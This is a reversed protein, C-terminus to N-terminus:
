KLGRAKLDEEQLLETQKQILEDLEEIKKELLRIRNQEEGANWDM